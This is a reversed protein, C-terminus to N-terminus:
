ASPDRGTFAVFGDMRGGNTARQEPTYSHNQGKTDFQTRDLRFPNMLGPAVGTAVNAAGTTNPNATLLEPRRLYNNAGPTRKAPTFAPEGDPNSARPYTGFYHDFSQNEGFIVVLHKIPTATALADQESVASARAPASARADALASSGLLMATCAATLWPNNKLIM